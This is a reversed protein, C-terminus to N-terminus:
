TKFSKSLFCFKIILLKQFHLIDPKILTYECLLLLQIVIYPKLLLRKILIWGTALVGGIVIFISVISATTLTTIFTHFLFMTSSALIIIFASSEKTTSTLFTIKRVWSKISMNLLLVVTDLWFACICSWHMWSTASTTWSFFTLYFVKSHDM